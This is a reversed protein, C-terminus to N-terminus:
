AFVHIDFLLLLYYHKIVEIDNWRNDYLQRSYLNARLQTGALSVGTMEDGARLDAVKFAGPM